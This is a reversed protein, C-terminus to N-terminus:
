ADRLLTQSAEAFTHKKIKGTCAIHRYVQRGSFHRDERQITGPERLDDAREINPLAESHGVSV